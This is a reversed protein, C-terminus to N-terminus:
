EIEGVWDELTKKSEGVNCILTMTDEYDGKPIETAKWGEHWSQSIITM